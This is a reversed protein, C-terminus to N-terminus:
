SRLIRCMDSRQPVQFLPPHRHTLQTDCFTESLVYLFKSFTFNCLCFNNDFPELRVNWKLSFIVVVPQVSVILPPRTGPPAPNAAPRYFLRLHCCAKGQAEAYLNGSSYRKSLSFSKSCRLFIAFM